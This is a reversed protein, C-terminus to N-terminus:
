ASPSPTVLRAGAPSTTAPARPVVGAAPMGPVSVGSATRGTAAVVVDLDVALGADALEDDVALEDEDAAL